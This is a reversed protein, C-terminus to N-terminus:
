ACNSIRSATPWTALSSRPTSLLRYSKSCGLPDLKCTRVKVIIDVGACVPGLIGIPDIGSLQQVYGNVQTVIELAPRIARQLRLVKDNGGHIQVLKEVNQMARIAENGQSNRRESKADLGADQDIGSTKRREDSRSLAEADLGVDRGIGEATKTVNAYSHQLTQESSVRPDDPPTDDDGNNNAESRSASKSRSRSRGRGVAIGLKEGIKKFTKSPM